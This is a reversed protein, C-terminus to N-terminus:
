DAGELQAVARSVDRGLRRRGALHGLGLWRLPAAPPAPTVDIFRAGHAAARAKIAARFPEAAAPSHVEGTRADRAEAAPFAIVMAVRRLGNDRAFGLFWDLRAEFEDVDVHTQGSSADVLWDSFSGGLVLSDCPVSCIQTAREVLARSSRLPRRLEHLTLGPLDRRGVAHGLPLAVRPAPQFILDALLVARARQPPSAALRVRERVEPDFYVDIARRPAGALEFEVTRPEPARAERWAGNRFLLIVRTDDPVPHPEGFCDHLIQVPDRKWGRTHISAWRTYFRKGILWLFHGGPALAAKIREAVWEFEAESGVKTLGGKNLVLDCGSGFRQVLDAHRLYGQFSDIVWALAPHKRECQSIAARSMDVGLFACPDLRAGALQECRQYVAALLEGQGCGIELCSHPRLDQVAHFLRELVKLAADQKFHEASASYAADYTAAAAAEANEYVIV